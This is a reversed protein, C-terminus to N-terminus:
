ENAGVRIFERSANIPVVAKMPQYQGSLEAPLDSLDSDPIPTVPNPTWSEQGLTSNTLVHYTVGSLRQNWRVTLETSTFTSNILGTNTLVPSTGFLFEDLNSFSDGDPNETPLGAPPTFASAWTDYAQTTTDNDFYAVPLTQSVNAIELNFSRNTALNEDGGNPADPATNFFRYEGFPTGLAGVVSSLTGTYIGDADPDTLILEGPAALGSIFLTKVQDAGPTFLGDSIQVNMNLSFVIERTALLPQPDALDNLGDNDSDISTPDTNAAFEAENDIGDSDFDSGASLDYAALFGAEDPFVTRAFSYTLAVQDFYFRHFGTARITTSLNAGDSKVTGPTDDLGWDNDLTSTSFKYSIPGLQSTIFKYDLQWQYQSTLDTSVQTMAPELTPSFFLLVAMDAYNPINPNSVYGLATGDVEAGDLYTDDDSDSDGPDTGTDTPSNYTGTNTEFEDLLDDEDGDPNAETYNVPISITQAGLITEFNAEAIDVGFEDTPNTRSNLVQNSGYTSTQDVLAATVKV